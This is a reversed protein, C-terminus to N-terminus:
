VGGMMEGGDNGEDICWLGVVRGGNGALLGSGTELRGDHIGESDEHYACSTDKAPVDAIARLAALAVGLMWLGVVVHKFKGKPTLDEAIEACHEIECGTNGLNDQVVSSLASFTNRHQEEEECTNSIKSIDQANKCVFRM